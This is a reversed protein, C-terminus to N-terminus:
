TVPKTRIASIIIPFLLVFYVFFALMETIVLVKTNQTTPTFDGFGLTTMTVLSHYLATVPDKIPNSWENGFYLCIKAFCVTM